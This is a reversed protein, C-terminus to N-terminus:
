KFEFFLLLLLLSSSFNMDPFIKQLVMQCKGDDCLFNSDVGLCFLSAPLEKLYSREAIAARENLPARLLATQSTANSRAAPVLAARCGTQESVGGVARIGCGPARRGVSPVHHSVFLFVRTRNGFLTQFVGFLRHLG